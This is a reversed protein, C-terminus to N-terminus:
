AVYQYAANWMDAASARSKPRRLFPVGVEGVDSVISDQTSSDGVVVVDFDDSLAKIANLDLTVPLPYGGRLLVALQVSSRVFVTRNALLSCPDALVVNHTLFHNPTCSSPFLLAYHSLSPATHAHTCHSFSQYPAVRVCFLPDELTCWRRASFAFIGRAIDAHAHASYRAPTDTHTTTHM